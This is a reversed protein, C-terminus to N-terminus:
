YGAAAHRQPDQIDEAKQQRFHISLIVSLLLENIQLFLSPFRSFLMSFIMASSLPAAKHIGAGFDVPAQSYM